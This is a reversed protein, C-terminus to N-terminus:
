SETRTEPCTRQGRQVGHRLMKEGCRECTDEPRDTGASIRELQEAVRHYESAFEAPTMGDYASPPLVYSDGTPRGTVVLGGYRTVYTRLTDPVEGCGM